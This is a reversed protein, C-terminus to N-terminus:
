GEPLGAQRLGDLMADRFKAAETEAHFTSRLRVRALTADPTVALLRRVVKRAEDHQGLKSLSAAQYQLAPAFM